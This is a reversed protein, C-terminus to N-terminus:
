DGAIMLTDFPQFIEQAGTTSFVPEPSAYKHVFINDVWLIHTGNGMQQITTYGSTRSYTFSAIDDWLITSGDSDIHIIRINSNYEYIKTKYWKNVVYTRTPTIAVDAAGAFMVNVNKGFGVGGSADGYPIGGNQTFITFTSIPYSATTNTRWWFELVKGTDMSLQGISQIGANGIIYYDLKLSNGSISTVNDFSRAQGTGFTTWKSLNGSEFDDFFDFTNTGNSLSTVSSNDYYVYITTTSPSSPISSIKIWFTAISGSTFSEIWYDLLTIGDSQTFRVDGFDDRVNTGLYTDTTTDSGSSKHFIMKMQYDTQSGASSGSIIKSKRKNWGTLWAM